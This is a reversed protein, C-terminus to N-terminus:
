KNILPKIILSNNIVIASTHCLTPCLADDYWTFERSCWTVLTIIVWHSTISCSIYMYNGIYNNSKHFMHYLLSEKHEVTLCQCSVLILLGLGNASCHKCQTPYFRIRTSIYVNHYRLKGMHWMLVCNLYAKFNCSLRPLRLVSKM